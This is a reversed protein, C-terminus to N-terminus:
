LPSLSCDVSVRISKAINDKYIRPISINYDAVLVNFTSRISLKGDTVTITGPIDVERTVGHITLKGKVQANYTGNITYRIDGNNVIKGTFSSKPFKDSEVYNKNFHEQMLAKKFEFGKMLVSFQVDGTGADVVTSVSRNHAEINEMSASSFFSIKGNKTYFKQASTTSVVLFSLFGLFLLKKM